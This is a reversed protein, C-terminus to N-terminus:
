KAQPRYILFLDSLAFLLSSPHPILSSFRVFARKREKM